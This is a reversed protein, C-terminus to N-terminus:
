RRGHHRDDEVAAFRRRLEAEDSERIAQGNPGMYSKNNAVCYEIWRYQQDLLARRLAPGKLGKPPDRPPYTLTM